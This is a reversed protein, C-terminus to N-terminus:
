LSWWARLARAAASFDGGHNLLAYASFKSYAREPEFLTSSTFIFLLGDGHENITASTGLQKGPRTWHQNAGVSRWHRWGHPELIEAWSARANFADAVSDGTYTTTRRVAAPPPPMEDLTRAVDYLATREAATLTPITTIGGALLVYPRGTPHVRGHSPALICYGGTERTEILVKVKDGPDAMEEPRKPRRALKTNRGVGECRIPWHVGGGPTHELYGTDLRAIVDGMGAAAAAARFRDAVEATEAELVLTNRSVPGCVVGIGTLGAGYWRELQRLSPREYEYRRWPVLPAKSGDQRPPLVCLGEGHAEKVTTRVDPRSIVSM